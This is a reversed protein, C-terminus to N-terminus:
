SLQSLRCRLPASLSLDRVPGVGPKQEIWLPSLSVLSYLSQQDGTEVSGASYYSHGDDKNICGAIIRKVTDFRGAEASEESKATTASDM